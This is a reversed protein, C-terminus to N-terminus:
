KSQEDKWQREIDLFAATPSKGRATFCFAKGAWKTVAISWFGATHRTLQQHTYGRRLFKAAIAESTKTTKM